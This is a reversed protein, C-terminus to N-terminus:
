NPSHPQNGLGVQAWNSCPLGCHLMRQGGQCCSHYRPGKSRCQGRKAPLCQMVSVHVCSSKVTPVCDHTSKSRPSSRCLSNQLSHWFDRSESHQEPGCSRKHRNHGCKHGPVQVSSPSRRDTAKWDRWLHYATGGGGGRQQQQQQQQQPQDTPWGTKHPFPPRSAGM